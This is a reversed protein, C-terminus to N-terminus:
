KRLVDFSSLFPKENSCIELLRKRLGYMCEKQHAYVLIDLVSRAMKEIEESNKSPWQWDIPIPDEPLDEVFAAAYEDHGRHKEYSELISDYYMNFADTYCSIVLDMQTNNICLWNSKQRATLIKDIFPRTYEVIKIYPDDDGGRVHDYIPPYGFVNNQVHFMVMFLNRAYPDCYGDDRKMGLERRLHYSVVEKQIKMKIMKDM